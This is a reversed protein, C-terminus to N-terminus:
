GAIADVLDGLAELPGVCTLAGSSVLHEPTARKMLLAGFAPLSGSVSVEVDGPHDDRVHIETADFDVRWARQDCTLRMSWPARAGRFRRKLSVMAWRIDVHDAVDPGQLYRAGFRGLALVVSELSRGADTLAYGAEVPEILGAEKLKQLRASLLAPSIGVLTAELQGFKQPGLLLDRVILLTWREGIVDLAKAVGCYQHYTKSM